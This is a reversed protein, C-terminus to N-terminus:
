EAAEAYNARRFRPSDPFPCLEQKQWGEEHLQKFLRSKEEDGMNFVYDQIEELTIVDYSEIICQKKM